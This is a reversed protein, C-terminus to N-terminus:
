KTPLAWMKGLHYRKGKIEMKTGLHLQGGNQEGELRVEWERPPNM